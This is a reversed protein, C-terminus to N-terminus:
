EKPYNPLVWTIQGASPPPWLLYVDVWRSWMVLNDDDYAVDIHRGIVAPGIDLAEGMGYGAVYMKTRLPIVRRDVAVVGKRVREGSFTRTGGASIANYSTVYARFKRWYTIQTGDALTVSQPELRQGYAVVRDVPGQAVWSAELSRDIRIGNEYRLRYRRRQIGEAGPVTVQQTDLAINPDGIFRTEFPTTAEIIEIEEHVRTLDIAIGPYLQTELPPEVQDLGTLAIGSESLADSVTLARTRTKVTRGDFRLEVPTSRQIYVRMGPSISSGLSPQVRDGLYLTIAAHRLAEGVTPATTRVTYPLGGEDVTFAVARRVRISAPTSRRYEWAYGRRYTAPLQTAEGAPLSDNLGIARDNFLFEDYLDVRLGADSLVAQVTEGRSAIQRDLGDALIRWTRARDIRVAVGNTLPAARDLSVRDQARLEIGLDVLLDAVTRRHTYVTDSVGDVTVLIPRALARWGLGLFLLLLLSSVLELRISQRQTLRQRKRQRNPRTLSPQPLTMSM